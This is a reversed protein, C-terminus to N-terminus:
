RSPRGFYTPAIAQLVQPNLTAACALPEPAGAALLAEYTAGAARLRRQAEYAEPSLSAGLGTLFDTFFNRNPPM